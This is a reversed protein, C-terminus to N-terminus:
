KRGARNDFAKGTVIDGHMTAFTRDISIPAGVSIGLDEVEQQQPCGVYIFM